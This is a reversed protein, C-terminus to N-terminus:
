FKQYSKKIKKRKVKKNFVIHIYIYFSLIYIYIYNFIYLIKIIYHILKNNKYYLIINFKM